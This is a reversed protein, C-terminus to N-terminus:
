VPDTDAGLLEEWQTATSRTVPMAAKWSYWRRSGFVKRKWLFRLVQVTSTCPLTSPVTPIQQQQHKLSLKAHHHHKLNL